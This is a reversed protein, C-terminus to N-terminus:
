PFLVFVLTSLFTPEEKWAQWRLKIEKLKYALFHVLFKAQARKSINGSLVNIDLM